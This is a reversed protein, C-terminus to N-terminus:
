REDGFAERVRNADVVKLGDKAFCCYGKLYYCETGGVLRVVGDTEFVEDKHREYEPYRDTIRVKM